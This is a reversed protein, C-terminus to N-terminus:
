RNLKFARRQAALQQKKTDKVAKVYGLVSSWFASGGSCLFAVFPVPLKYNEILPFSGIFNFGKEAFFSCTIWACVFSLLQVKRIRLKDESFTKEGTEDELSPFITKVLAVLRETSLSLALLITSLAFLRDLM